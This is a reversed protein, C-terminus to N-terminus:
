GQKAPRIRDEEEPKVYPADRLFEIPRAGSAKGAQRKFLEAATEVVGFNSIYRPRGAVAHVDSVIDWGILYTRAKPVSSLSEM